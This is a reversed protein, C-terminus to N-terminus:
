CTPFHFLLAVCHSCCQPKMVVRGIVSFGNIENRVHVAASVLKRDWDHLAATLTEDCLDSSHEVGSSHRAIGLYLSLM